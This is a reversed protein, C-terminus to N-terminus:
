VVELVPDIYVFWDPITLLQNAHSRFPYSGTECFSLFGFGEGEIDPSISCSLETWADQAAINQTSASYKFGTSTPYAVVLFMSDKDPLTGGYTGTDMGSVKVHLSATYTGPTLAVRFTDHLNNPYCRSSDTGPFIPTGQNHPASAGFRGIYESAILGSAWAHCNCTLRVRYQTTSGPRSDSSIFHIGKYSKSRIPASFDTSDEHPMQILQEGIGQQAGFNAYERGSVQQYKEHDMFQSLDSALEVGNQQSTFYCGVFRRPASRAVYPTTAWDQNEILTDPFDSNTIKEIGTFKSGICVMVDGFDKAYFGVMDELHSGVVLKSGYGYSLLPTRLDTDSFVKDNQLHVKHFVERCGWRNGIDVDGRVKMDVNDLVIMPEIRHTKPGGNWDYPLTYAAGVSELIVNAIYFDARDLLLVTGGSDTIQTKIVAMGNATRSADWGASQGAAPRMDYFPEGEAPWGVISVAGTYQSVQPNAAYTSGDYTVSAEVFQGSTTSVTLTTANSEVWIIDEPVPRFGATYASQLTQYATAPTLGDSDDGGASIYYYAM